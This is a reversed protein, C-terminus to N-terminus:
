FRAGVSLFTQASYGSDSNRGEDPRVDLRTSSHELRVFYQQGEKPWFNYQAGVRVDGGTGLSSLWSPSSAGELFIALSANTGLPAEVEVGGGVRTTLIAATGDGDRAVGISVPAAIAQLRVNVDRSPIGLQLRARVEPSIRLFHRASDEAAPLSVQFDGNVPIFSVELDAGEAIRRTLIRVPIAEVRGRLRLIPQGMSLDVSGIFDKGELDAHGALSFGDETGGIGGAVGTVRVPGVQPARSPEDAQASGLAAMLTPALVLSTVLLSKPLLKM